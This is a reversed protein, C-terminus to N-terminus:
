KVICPVRCLCFTVENIISLIHSNESNRGLDKNAKKLAEKGEGMVDVDYVDEPKVQIDFSQLPEVYRCETM